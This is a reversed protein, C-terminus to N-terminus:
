SVRLNWFKFTEAETHWSLGRASWSKGCTLVRSSVAGWKIDLVGTVLSTQASEKQELDLITLLLETAWSFDPARSLDVTPQLFLGSGHPDHRQFLPYKEYSPNTSSPLWFYPTLSLFAIDSDRFLLSECGFSIRDANLLILEDISCYCVLEWLEM